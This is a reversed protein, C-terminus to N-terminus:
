WSFSSLRAWLRVRGGPGAVGRPPPAGGQAAACRLFPLARAPPPGSPGSARSPPRGEAGPAPLRYLADPPALAPPLFFSTYLRISAEELM